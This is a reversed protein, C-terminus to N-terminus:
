RWYMLCDAISELAAKNLIFEDEQQQLMQVDVRTAANCENGKFSSPRLMSVKDYEKHEHTVLM